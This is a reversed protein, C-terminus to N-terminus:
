DTAPEKTAGAVKKQAQLRLLGFVIKGFGPDIVSPVGCVTAHINSKGVNFDKCGFRM